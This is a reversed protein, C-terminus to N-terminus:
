KKEIPGIYESSWSKHARLSADYVASKLQEIDLEWWVFHKGIAVDVRTPQHNAMNRIPNWGGWESNLFMRDTGTFGFPLYLCREDTLMPKMWVPISNKCGVAFNEPSDEGRKARWAFPFLVIAESGKPTSISELVKGDLARLLEVGDEGSARRDKILRSTVSRYDKPWFVFLTNFGITFPKLSQYYMYAGCVFRVDDFWFTRSLNHFVYDLVPADLHSKHNALIVLRKGTLHSAKLANELNKLSDGDFSTGRVMHGFLSHLRSRVRPNSDFGLWDALLNKICFPNSFLHELIAPDESGFSIVRGKETDQLLTIRESPFRDWAMRYGQYVWRWVLLDNRNCLLLLRSFHYFLKPDKVLLEVLSSVMEKTGISANRWESARLVNGSSSTNICEREMASSTPNHSIFLFNRFFTLCFLDYM